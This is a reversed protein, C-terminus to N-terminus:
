ISVEQWLIKVKIKVDLVNYFSICLQDIRIAVNIRNNECAYNNDCQLM